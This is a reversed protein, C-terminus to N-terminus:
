DSDEAGDVEGWNGDEAQEVEGPESDEAEPDAEGTDSGEEEDIQLSKSSNKKSNTSSSSISSQVSANDKDTGGYLLHFNSVLRQHKRLLMKKQTVARMTRTEDEDEDEDSDEEYFSELESIDQQFEQNNKDIYAAYWGSFLGGSYTNINMEGDIKQMKWGRLLGRMREHFEYVLMSLTWDINIWQEVTVPAPKYKKNKPEPQEDNEASDPDVADDEGDDYPEGTITQFQHTLVNELFPLLWVEVRDGFQNKLPTVESIESLVGDNQLIRKALDGHMKEYEKALPTLEDLVQGVDTFFDRDYGTNEPWDTLKSIGKMRHLYGDICEEVDKDEAASKKAQECVPILKEVIDNITISSFLFWEPPSWRPPKQKLFVNFEHVSIYGSGDDDIADGIAPHFMVRSLIPLTWNDQRPVGNQAVYKEFETRFWSCIENVFIKSKVSTSWHQLHTLLVTILIMDEYMQQKVSSDSLLAVCLFICDMSEWVNKFESDEILNHPGSNLKAMIEARSSQINMNINERAEEMQSLFAGTFEELIDDISKHLLEKTENTVQESFISAFAKLGSEDQPDEISNTATGIQLLYTIQDQRENCRQTFTELREKFEGAKLFGVFARKNTTYFANAFGGFEKVLEHIESYEAQLDNQIDESLRIKEIHRITLTASSLTYFAVAMQENNQRRGLEREVALQLVSVAAQAFGNAQAIMGGYKLGDRLYELITKIHKSKDKSKKTEAEKVLREVKELIDASSQKAAIVQSDIAPDM